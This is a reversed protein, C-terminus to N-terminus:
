NIPMQIPKESESNKMMGWDKPDVKLNLAIFQAKRAKLLPLMFIKAAL